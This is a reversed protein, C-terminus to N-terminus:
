EWVFEWDRKKEDGLEDIILKPRRHKRKWYLIFIVGVALGGLHGWNAIGPQMGTLGYFIEIGAFVVVAVIAPMPIGPFMIIWNRPYLLGYAAMVGFVAGSAGLLQRSFEISLLSAPTAFYTILLYIVGSGIGSAFFLIIYRNRGITNETQVGFILLAFMNLFLHFFDGHLFMYTFFQWPHGNLAKEPTLSFEGSFGKLAMQGGFVIIAILIIAFTVKM